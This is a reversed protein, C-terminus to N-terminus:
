RGHLHAYFAEGIRMAACQIVTHDVLDPLTDVFMVRGEEDTAIEAFQIGDRALVRAVEVVTPHTEGTIVEQRFVLHRLAMKFSSGAIAATRQMMCGPLPLVSPNAYPYWHWSPKVGIEGFRFPTSPISDRLLLRRWVPWASGEFWAGADYRNIALIGPTNFAALWLARLEIDCFDRDEAIFEESFSVAPPSRFFIGEIRRGDIEVCDPTVQMNVDALTSAHVRLVSVDRRRLEVAVSEALSDGFRAVIVVSASLAM